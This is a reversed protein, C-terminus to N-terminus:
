QKDRLRALIANWIELLGLRSAWETIYKQDIQGRSISLIGTIDRLHKESGGVRYYEMKKIIVDEPAAFSAEAADTLRVKRLRAFRSRDFPSGKSIYVDIKLGSAPHIINFQSRSNIAQRVMKEDLYFEDRPFYERLPAVHRMKLDAVIDIDNTLRPEGWAISAMAGTVLYPIGLAEFAEVIRRLLEYPGM